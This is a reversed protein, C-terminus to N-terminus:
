IKKFKAWYNFLHFVQWDYPSVRGKKHEFQAFFFHIIFLRWSGDYGILEFINM